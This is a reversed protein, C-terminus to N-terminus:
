IGVVGRGGASTLIEYPITKCELATEAVSKGRGFFLVEDGVFVKGGNEFIPTVDFMTRDMCPVGCARVSCGNIEATLHNKGSRLLGDAYGGCVTAVVTDRRCLFADGYGVSEGKVATHLGVVRSKATMVPILRHGQYAGYLAIGIRCLDLRSKPLELAAQSAACHKLIRRGLRSELERSIHEFRSVTELTETKNYARPLHTYVGLINDALGFIERPIEQLRLGSRNMSTELKLHLRANSKFPYIERAYEESFVTMTINKDILESIECSKARSLLLIESDPAISRALFAEEAKAVAFRRCGAEYLVSVCNKLEHGYANCKVVAFFDGINKFLTFYNDALAHMDCSIEFYSM